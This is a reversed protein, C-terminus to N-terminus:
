SALRGPSMCSMPSPARGTGMWCIRGGDLIPRLAVKRPEGCATTVIHYAGKTAFHQDSPEVAIALCIRVGFQRKGNIIEPSCHDSMRISLQWSSAVLHWCVYTRGRQQKRVPRKLLPNHLLNGRSDRPPSCGMTRNDEVVATIGAPTEGMREFRIQFHNACGSALSRVIGYGTITPFTVPISTQTERLFWRSRSWRRLSPAARRVASEHGGSTGM